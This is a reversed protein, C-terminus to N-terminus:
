APGDCERCLRVYDGEFQWRALMRHCRRCKRPVGSLGPKVQDSPAAQERLRRKARYRERQYKNYGEQTTTLGELGVKKPLQAYQYFLSQTRRRIKCHMCERHKLLEFDELPRSKECTKCTKSAIEQSGLKSSIQATM